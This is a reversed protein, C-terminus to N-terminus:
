ENKVNPTRSNHFVDSETSNLAELTKRLNRRAKKHDPKIELTKRFWLVADELNGKVMYCAGINLYANPDTPDLKVLVQFHKFADEIYGANALALGLNLRPQALEPSKAVCDSWLTIHDKWVKNREVTWFIFLIIVTSFLVAKIWGSKIYRCVIYVVGFYLLMSPQYIRHEFAIQLAIVSSEIVQNGLLWLLCFSLLRNRKAIYVALVLLGIIALLCFLTSVPEFLSNSLSFDYLFNLRSPHPFFMLLLYYIIVRFETLLRQKLTFGYDYIEYRSSITEFPNVGLYICAVTAITIPIVACIIFYRKFWRASLGQIFYWEYLFIIIPLTASNEKSGFALLGSLICGTFYLAIKARVKGADGESRLNVSKVKLMLLRGKIYFLLSALYFMMAMSNMRQVIYTVSQVDIPNLAWIACAIFAITSPQDPLRTNDMEPRVLNASDDHETREFLWLTYKMFFYLLISTIIHIFINILHYGLLNYQHVYYNLAFSINAVPRRSCPSDFGASVISSFSLDNMRIHVNEKIDSYDDLVFPYGITGVYLMFIVASILFLLARENQIIFSFHKVINRFFDSM